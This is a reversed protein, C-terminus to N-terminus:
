ERDKGRQDDEHGHQESDPQNGIRHSPQQVASDMTLRTIICDPKHQFQDMNNVAMGACLQCSFFSGRDDYEICSKVVAERLERNEAELRQVQEHMAAFQTEIEVERPLANRRYHELQKVAQHRSEVLARIAERLRSRCGEVRERPYHNATDTALDRALQMIEDVSDTHKSESM